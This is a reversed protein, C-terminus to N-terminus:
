ANYKGIEKKILEKTKVGAQNTMWSVLPPYKIGDFDFVDGSDHPIVVQSFNYHFNMEQYIIYEFLHWKQGPKYKKEIPNCRYTFWSYFDKFNSERKQYQNNYNNMTAWMTGDPKGIKSAILWAFVYDDAKEHIYFTKDLGLLKNMEIFGRDKGQNEETIVDFGIKRRKNEKFSRNILCAYAGFSMDGKDRADWVAKAVNLYKNTAIEDTDDKDAYFRAVDDYTVIREEM